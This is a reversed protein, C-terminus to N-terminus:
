KMQPLRVTFESGHGLGASTAIVSGGHLEALMRVLALGIGLGSRSRPAAEDAQVFLDFIYPLVDPAIGIGCDRVCVIAHGDGTQVSLALDGGADTYKSANALLNVFVQELRSADAHLWVPADPWTAAVRHDRQTFDSELTEIAARVVVCLDVRERKLRLRGCTIRTVDLLGAALQTMQCVQREILAHMRLRLALDDGARGRLIVIANQISGLPSRLEHCLVALFENKRRDATILEEIRSRALRRPRNHRTVLPDTLMFSGGNADSVVIDGADVAQRADLANRAALPGLTREAGTLSAAHTPQM